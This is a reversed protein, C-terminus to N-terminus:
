LMVRFHICDVTLQIEDVFKSNRVMRIDINVVKIESSDVLSLLDEIFRSKGIGKDGFINMSKSEQVINKYINHTFDPRLLHNM